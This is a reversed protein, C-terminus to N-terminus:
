KAYWVEHGVIVTSELIAQYESLGYLLLTCAIAFLVAAFIRELMESIRELAKEM